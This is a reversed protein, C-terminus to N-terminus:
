QKGEGRSHSTWDLWEELAMYKIRKDNESDDTDRFYETIYFQSLPIAYEESIERCKRIAYEFDSTGEVPHYDEIKNGIRFDRIGIFYETWEM